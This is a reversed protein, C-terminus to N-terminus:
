KAPKVGNIKLVTYKIEAHAPTMSYAAFIPYFRGGPLIKWFENFDYDVPMENITVRHSKGKKAVVLRITADVDWFKFDVFRHEFVKEQVNDYNTYVRLWLNGNGLPQLMLHVANGDAGWYPFNISDSFALSIWQESGPNSLKDVKIDIAFGDLKLKKNHAIGSGFGTKADTTAKDPPYDPYIYQWGSDTYKYSPPLPYKARSAVKSSRVPIWLDDPTAGSSPVPLALLPLAFLLLSSACHLLPRFASQPIHLASHRLPSM